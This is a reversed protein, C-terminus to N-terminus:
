PADSTDPGSRGALWRAAAAVLLVVIALYLLWRRARLVLGLVALVIAVLVLVLAIRVPKSVSPSRESPAGLTGPGRATM